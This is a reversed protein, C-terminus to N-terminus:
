LHEYNFNMFQNISKIHEKIRYSNTDDISFWDNNGTIKSHVRHCFAPYIRNEDDWFQRMAMTKDDQMICELKDSAYQFSKKARYFAMRWVDKDGHTLKFLEPWRSTLWEMESLAKECQKKDIIFQGTEIEYEKRFPVECAEWLPNDELFTGFDRWFIAGDYDFVPHHIILSPHILPLCDADLFIVINENCQRIANLKATWPHGYYDEIPKVTSGLKEFLPKWEDMGEHPLHYVYHPYDVGLAKLEMAQVAAGFSYKGGALTAIAINSKM